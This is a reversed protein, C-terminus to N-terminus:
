SSQLTPGFDGAILLTFYSWQNQPSIVGPFGMEKQGDILPSIVGNIFITPAWSTVIKCNVFEMAICRCVGTLDNGILNVTISKGKVHSEFIGDGFGM